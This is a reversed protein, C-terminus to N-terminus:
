ARGAGCWGLAARGQGSVRAPRLEFLNAPEEVALEDVTIGEATAQERLCVEVGDPVQISM